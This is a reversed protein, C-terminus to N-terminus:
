ITMPLEMLLIKTNSNTTIEIKESDWIAIADRKDLNHAEVGASGEIIFIYIGNLKDKLEYVTKVETDFNGMYFWANQHIWVGQDNVHPSLIQYFENKKEIDKLSIQDYRPKVNKKNPFIWVQLLNVELEDHANFESHMIGTGASMVQIDGNKIVTGNGMNDKHQLAGKLPITVIEMNDHPHTSFGKGGAIIDDNLVRLVGFHMREPNYYDAFSFSHKAILWGHSVEGRSEAKHIITNM